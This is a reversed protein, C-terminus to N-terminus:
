LTMGPRWGSAALFASADTMELIERLARRKDPANLYYARVIRYGVWYGLDGPNEATANYLWDSLDTKAGDAMFAREIEAERGAVTASLHSYAVNGSILEAIFEAAGEVLSAQLVTPTAIESLEPAQLAHVYEHALVHVFRDELDPNLFDAACLAEIGVQVGTAPTGMGVPRGRGVAITVTPFRAAPYLRGLELLVTELRQRVRPLLAACHRAGTYIHPRAAIAEAIRAGTIRRAVAFHRLGPSGGDIYQQLQDATPQGNAADYLAYFRDVDAIVIEPTAAPSAQQAAIPSLAIAWAALAIRVRGCFSSM